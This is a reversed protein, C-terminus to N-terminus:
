PLVPPTVTISVVRTKEVQFHIGSAWYRLYYDEDSRKDYEYGQGFTRVVLDVDSGVGVGNATRFHPSVTMVSVVAGQQVGLTLGVQEYVYALSGGEAPRIKGAGLAKEVEEIPLDLRIFDVRQGPVLRGDHPGPEAAPAPAPATLPLNGLVALLAVVLCAALIALLAPSARRKSSVQIAEGGV